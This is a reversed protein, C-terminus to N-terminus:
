YLSLTEIRIRIRVTVTHLIMSQKTWTQFESCETISSTTPGAEQRTLEIRSGLVQAPRQNSDTLAIEPLSTGTLCQPFFDVFLEINTRSNRSLQGLNAIANEHKSNANLVGNIASGKKYPGTISSNPHDRSCTVNSADALNAIPATVEIRTPRNTSTMPTRLINIKTEVAPAKAM